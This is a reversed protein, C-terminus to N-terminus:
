NLQSATPNTKSMLNGVYLGLLPFLANSTFNYFVNDLDSLFLLIIIPTFCASYIALKISKTRKATALVRERRRVLLAFPILVVAGAIPGFNMLAEGQLGYIRSDLSNRTKSSGEGYLIETSAIRKNPFTDSANFGPLFALADGVYTRGLYPQFPESSWRDLLIAQMGSRAFDGILMPTLGFSRNSTEEVSHVGFERAEALGETGTKKYIDYVGSFLLLAVTLIVLTRMKIQVYLIHILLLATLAPWVLNARSGRLGSTIFVFIILLVFALFLRQKIKSQPLEKTPLNFAYSMFFLIPFSEAVAIIWGPGLSAERYNLQSNLWGAPGGLSFVYYCFAGFCIIGVVFMGRSYFRLEAETNSSKSEKERVTNKQNPIRVFLFYFILGTLHLLAVNSFAEHMNEPLSIYGPYNEQSVHLLPAIYVGNLMILSLLARPALLDSKKRLADILDSSAFAANFSILLLYTKSLNENSLNVLLSIVVAVILGIFFSPFTTERQSAVLVRPKNLRQNVLHAM